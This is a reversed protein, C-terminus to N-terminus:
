RGTYREIRYRIGYSTSRRRATGRLSKGWRTHRSPQEDLTNKGSSVTPDQNDKDKYYALTLCPAKVKSFTEANMTADILAQLQIRDIGAEARREM